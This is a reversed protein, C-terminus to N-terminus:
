FCRIALFDRWARSMFINFILDKKFTLVANRWFIKGKNPSLDTEDPPLFTALDNFKVLRASPYLNEAMTNGPLGDYRMLLVGRMFGGYGVLKFLRTMKELIFYYAGDSSLVAQDVTLSSQRHAYDMSRM